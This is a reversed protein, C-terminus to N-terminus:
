TLSLTLSERSPTRHSDATSSVPTSLRSPTGYATTVVDYVQGAQTCPVSTNPTFVTTFGTQHVRGDVWETHGSDSKYSGGLGCIESPDSPPTPQSLAADRYYPTWGKVEAVLLTKSTGDTISRMATGENPDIAGEGPLQGTPDFVRWVGRNLGYNTPYHIPEGDWWREDRHLTYPCIIVTTGRRTSLAGEEPCPLFASAIPRDPM